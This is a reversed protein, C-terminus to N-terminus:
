QQEEQTDVPFAREIGITLIHSMMERGFDTEQQIHAVIEKPSYGKSGRFLIKEDPTPHSSAWREVAELAEATDAM